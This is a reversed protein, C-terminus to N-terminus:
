SSAEATMAAEVEETRTYTGDNIKNKVGDYLVFLENVRAQAAMAIEIMEPMKVLASSGDLFQWVTQWDPLMQGALVASTMRSQSVDDTAVRHGRWDAGLQMLEWRRNAAFALLQRKVDEATWVHITFYHDLYRPARVRVHTEGSPLPTGAAPETVGDDPLPIKPVSAAVAYHMDAPRSEEPLEERLYFEGDEVFLTEMPAPLTDTEVFAVGHDKLVQRLAAPNAGSETGILNLFVPDYRVFTSM